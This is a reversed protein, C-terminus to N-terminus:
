SICPNIGYYDKSYATFGCRGCYKVKVPVFTKGSFCRWEFVLKDRSNAAYEAATHNQTTFVLECDPNESFVKEFGTASNTEYEAYTVEGDLIFPAFIEVANQFEDNLKEEHSDSTFRRFIIVRAMTKRRRVRAKHICPNITFTLAFIDRGLIIGYILAFRLNACKRLKIYYLHM